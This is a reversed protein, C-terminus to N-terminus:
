GAGDAASHSPVEARANTRAVFLGFLVLALAVESALTSGFFVLNINIYEGARNPVFRQYLPGALALAGFVSFWTAYAVTLVRAGPIGLVLALALLLAAVLRAVAEELSLSAWGTPILDRWLLVTMAVVAAYEILGVASLVTANV